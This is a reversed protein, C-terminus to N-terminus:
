ADELERATVTMTGHVSGEAAWHFTVSAVRGIQEPTSPIDTTLAMGPTADLNMVADLTQSRGRGQLTALISEALGDGPWAGDVEHLYVKRSDFGAADFREQQAGTQDRWRYRVVVATAYLPSGSPTTARLSVLEKAGILNQGEAIQVSGDVDHLPETLWWDGTEDCWLRLDHARVHGNIWDWVPAGPIVDLSAPAREVIPVMRSTSANATGDWAVTYRTPDPNNSGDFPLPIPGGFIGLIPAAPYEPVVEDDDLMRFVKADIYHYQGSSNGTTMAYPAVTQAWDPATAVVMFLTWDTTSTMKAFGSVDLREGSGDGGFFRLMAYANRAITSRLAFTFLYRKGPRVRFYGSSSDSPVRVNCDGAAATFRTSYTGYYPTVATSRVRNSAGTGVIISYDLTSNEGGPDLCLNVRTRTGTVDADEAGAELPGGGGVGYAHAVLERLTRSVARQSTDPSTAVRASDILRAEESVATLIVRDGDVDLEREHLLLDFTRTQTPDAPAVWDVTAEIVVRLNDRPDIQELVSEDPIPIQIVAEVYPTRTEDLTVTCAKWDTLTLDLAPISISVATDYLYTM